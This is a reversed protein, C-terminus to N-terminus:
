SVFKIDCPGIEADVSDETSHGCYDRLPIIGAELDNQVHGLPSIYELLKRRAFIEVIPHSPKDVTVNLLFM